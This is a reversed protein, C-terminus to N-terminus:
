QPSVEVRTERGVNITVRKKRTRGSSDRLYVVHQTASLERRLEPWAEQDAHGTFKEGDVWAYGWPAVRVVLTGRTSAEKVHPTVLLTSPAAAAGSDVTADDPAGGDMSPQPEAVTAHSGGPEDSQDARVAADARYAEHPQSAGKGRWAQFAAGGLGCALSAVIAIVGRGWRGRHQGVPRRRGEKTLEVAVSVDITPLERGELAAQLAEALERGRQYRDAPNKALLRMIIRSLMVPVDPKIVHPPTPLLDRVRRLILLDDDENDDPKASFPSQDTLYQYFTYGLAHLDGRPTYPPPEGRNWGATWMWQALEPSMHTPTGVFGRVGTVDGYLMSRSIGFDVLKPENDAKQVLINPSKIDRHVLGQSHVEELALALKILVKTVEAYSPARWKNLEEGEILDLILYPFGDRAHPWRDFAYVRVINPHRLSKLAAVERDIRQEHASREEATLDLEDLSILKLAFFQGDRLVKYVAGFGGRGVRAVVEYPGVKTGSTLKRPDIQESM